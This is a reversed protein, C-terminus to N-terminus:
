GKTEGTALKLGLGDTLGEVSGDEKGHIHIPMTATASTIMAIM